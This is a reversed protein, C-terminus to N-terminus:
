ETSNKGASPKGVLGVTYAWVGKGSLAAESLCKEECHFDDESSYGNSSAKSLSNGESHGTGPIPASVRPSIDQPHSSCTISDADDAVKSARRNRRLMVGAARSWAEDTATRVCEWEKREAEDEDVNKGSWGSANIEEILTHAVARLPEKGTGMEVSKAASTM